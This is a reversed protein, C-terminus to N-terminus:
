ARVKSKATMGTAEGIKAPLSAYYAALDQLDARVEILQATM